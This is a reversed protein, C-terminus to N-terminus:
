ARAKLREVAVEVSPMQCDAVGCILHGGTGIYLATSGCSPCPTAIRPRVGPRRQMVIANRDLYDAIYGAAEDM